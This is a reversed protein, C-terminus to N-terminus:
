NIAVLVGANVTQGPGLRPAAVTGPAGTRPEDNDMEMAEIV